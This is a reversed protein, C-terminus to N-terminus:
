GTLDKSLCLVLFPLHDLRQTKIQVFGFNKYWKILRDANAVIGIKVQKLGTQRALNLIHGVLKEGLGQKRYEPMVALRILCCFDKNPIEMAVCGVLKNNHMLIYYRIGNTFDDAMRDKTYFSTCRPHDKENLELQQAVNAFSKRILEVLNSIDSETAERIEM